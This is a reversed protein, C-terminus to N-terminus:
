VEERHYLTVSYSENWSNIVLISELGLTNLVKM